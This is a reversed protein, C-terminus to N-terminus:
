KRFRRTLTNIGAALAYLPPAYWATRAVPTEFGATAHEVLAQRTKASLDAADSSSEPERKKLAIALQALFANVIAYLARWRAENDLYFFNADTVTCEAWFLSKGAHRTLGVNRLKLDSSGAARPEVDFHLSVRDLPIHEMTDGFGANLRSLLGNDYHVYATFLDDKVSAQGMVSM